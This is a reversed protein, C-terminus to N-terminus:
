PAFVRRDRSGQEGTADDFDFGIEALVIGGSVSGRTIRFARRYQEPRGTVGVNVEDVAVVVAEVHRTLALALRAGDQETGQFRQNSELSHGVGPSHNDM